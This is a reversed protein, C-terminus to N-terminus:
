FKIYLGWFFLGFVLVTSDGENFKAFGFLPAIRTRKFKYRM